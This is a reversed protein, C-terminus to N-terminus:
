LRGAAQLRQEIELAFRVEEPALRGDADVLKRLSCMLAKADGEGQCVRGLATLYAHEDPHLRKVRRRVESESLGEDPVRNMVHLVIADCEEAAYDHDAYAVLSLITVEDRCEQMAMTELSMPHDATMRKALAHAAFFALADERVEGTHIDTFAVIRSALFSRLANREHCVAVICVDNIQRKISRVTIVRRSERGRSDRYDILFAMPPVDPLIDGEFDSDPDDEPPVHLPRGLQGAHAATAARRSLGRRRAFDEHEGM